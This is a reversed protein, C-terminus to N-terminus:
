VIREYKPIPVYLSTIFSANPNGAKHAHQLLEFAKVKNQKVGDGKLYMMGLNCTSFAHGASHAKQYLEVAKAKDQKM